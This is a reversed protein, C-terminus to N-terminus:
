VATAGIWGSRPNGLDSGDGIQLDASSEPMGIHHAEPYGHKPGPAMGFRRIEKSGETGWRRRQWYNSNCCCHDPSPTIIFAARKTHPPASARAPRPSTTPAGFASAAPPRHAARCEPTLPRWATETRTFCGTRVGDSGEAPM